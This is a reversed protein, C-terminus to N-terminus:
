SSSTGDSAPATSASSTKRAEKQAKKLKAIELVHANIADSIEEFDAPDLDRLAEPTYDVPKDEADRLSWDTLWVANRAIEYETWDTAYFLKGDVVTPKTGAAELQKQEGTTLLAKVEIWDGDSLPLRVTKPVVFRNRSM